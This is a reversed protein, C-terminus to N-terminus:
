VSFATSTIRSNQEKSNQKEIESKFDCVEKKLMEVILFILSFVPHYKIRIEVNGAIVDPTAKFQRLYKALTDSKVFFKFYFIRM